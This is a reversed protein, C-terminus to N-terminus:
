ACVYVCLTKAYTVKELQLSKVIVEKKIINNIQTM